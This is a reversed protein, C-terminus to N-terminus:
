VCYMSHNPFLLLFSYYEQLGCFHYVKDLGCVTVM